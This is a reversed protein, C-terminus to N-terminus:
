KKEAAPAPWVNNAPNYDPLSGDPNYTVSVIEETSPYKFSWNVNREWIEAGFNV